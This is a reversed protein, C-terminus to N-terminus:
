ATAGKERARAGWSLRGCWLENATLGALLLVCVLALAHPLESDGIRNAEGRGAAQAPAIDVVDKRLIDDFFAKDPAAPSLGVIRLPIRDRVIATLVERLNVQDSQATALDSVLLIGPKEPRDRDLIRRALVLGSSISTGATFDEAWPNSPLRVDGLPVANPESAVQGRRLPRFFRTFPALADGNTGPPLAEYANDSFLVLGWREGTKSADELVSRVRRYSDPTISASLDVVIVGNSGAPLFGHRGERLDLALVFAAAGCVLLGIGLVIRVARTRQLARTLGATDPLPIRPGTHRRVREWRM